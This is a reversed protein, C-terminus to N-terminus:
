RIRRYVVRLPFPVRSAPQGDEPRACRSRSSRSGTGSAASRSASSRPRARRCAAPGQALADLIMRREWEELAEDLSGALPSRVSADAAPRPRPRRAPDAPPLHEPMIVGDRSCWPARSCTSSSASTARGRTPGCAACRRPRCTAPPPWAAPGRAGAPAHGPAAPRRRARAAAPLRLGRGPAPLLSGPPVHGRAVMAELDRHTAAIVRVDAGITRTGGVREFEREQLVRLIKAQMALPMDGIEDLFLTGESAGARLPRARARVAGTFAGREHGFLESELLGEPIAACNVPM